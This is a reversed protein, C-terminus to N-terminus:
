ELHPALSPSGLSCIQEGSPKLKSSGRLLVRRLNLAGPPIISKKTTSSSTRHSRGWTTPRKLPLWSPSCSPTNSESFIRKMLHRGASLLPFGDRLIEFAKPVKRIGAAGHLSFMDVNSARRAAATSEEVVLFAETCYKGGYHIRAVVEKMDVDSAIAPRVIGM